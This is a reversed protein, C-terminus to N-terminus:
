NLNCCEFTNCPESRPVESDVGCVSEEDTEVLNDYKADRSAIIEAQDAMQSELETCM